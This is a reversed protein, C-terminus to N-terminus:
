QVPRAQKSIRVIEDLKMGIEPDIKDKPIFQILTHYDSKNFLNKLGLKEFFKAFLPDLFDDTAKIDNGWPDLKRLDHLAKM